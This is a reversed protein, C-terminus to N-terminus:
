VGHCCRMVYVISDSEDTSGRDTDGLSEAYFTVTFDRAAQDLLSSEARVAVARKVGRDKNQLCLISIHVDKFFTHYLLQNYCNSPSETLIRFLSSSMNFFYEVWEQNRYMHRHTLWVNWLTVICGKSGLCCTSYDLNVLTAIMLYLVEILRTSFFPLDFLALVSASISNIFSIRCWLQIHLIEGNKM